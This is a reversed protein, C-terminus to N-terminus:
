VMRRKRLYGGLGCVGGFVALMTLPEPIPDPDAPSGLQWGMEPFSWGPSWTLHTEYVRERGQNDVLTAFYSVVFPTSSPDGFIFNWNMNGTAPGTSIVHAPGSMTGVWGGTSFGNMGPSDFKGQPNGTAAPNMIVELKTFNYHVGLYNGNENFAQGWSNGEYSDGVAELTAGATGCLTLVMVGAALLSLYRM